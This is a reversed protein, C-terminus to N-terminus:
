LILRRKLVYRIKNIEQYVGINSKFLSQEKCLNKAYTMLFSESKSDLEYSTPNSVFSYIFRFLDLKCQKRVKEPFMNFDLAIADSLPIQSLVPTQVPLWDFFKKAHRVGCLLPLSKVCGPKASFRCSTKEHYDKWLCQYALRPINDEHVLLLDRTQWYAFHPLKTPLKKTVVDFLTGGVEPLYRFAAQKWFEIFKYIKGTVTYGEAEGLKAISDIIELYEEVPLKKRIVFKSLLDNQKIYINESGPFHFFEDSPPFFGRTKIKLGLQQLVGKEDQYFPACCIKRETCLTSLYDVLKPVSM